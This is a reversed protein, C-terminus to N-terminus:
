RTWVLVVERYYNNELWSTYMYMYIHVTHLYVIYVHVYMYKYINCIVYVSVRHIIGAAHIYQSLFCLFNNDFWTVLNHLFM